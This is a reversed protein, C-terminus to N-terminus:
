SSGESRGRKRGNVCDRHFEHAKGTNGGYTYLAGGAFAAGFSTAPQPLPPLEAHATALTALIILLKKM